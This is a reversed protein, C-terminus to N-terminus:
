PALPSQLARGSLWDVNVRVGAGSPRVIDISGGTAGGSPLFRISALEGQSHEISAVTAKLELSKPLAHMTSGAIGYLRHELDVNFRIESGESIARSRATRLDTLVNRTTERYQASERLRDFAIPVVATLLAGVAFVVLLELLTFGCASRAMRAANRWSSRIAFTRTKAKGVPRATQVSPFYKSREPLDQIPM